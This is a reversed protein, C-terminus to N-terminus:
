PELAVKEKTATIYADFHYIGDKLVHVESIALKKKVSINPSCLHSFSNSVGEAVVTQNKLHKNKVDLFVLHHYSSYM